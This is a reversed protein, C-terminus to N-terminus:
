EARKQNSAASFCSLLIAVSAKDGTKVRVSWVSSALFYGLSLQGVIKKATGGINQDNQSILEM